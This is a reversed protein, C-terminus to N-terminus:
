RPAVSAWYRKPDKQGEYHRGGDLGGLTRGRLSIVVEAM